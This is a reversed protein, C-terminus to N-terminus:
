NRTQEAIQEIVRGEFLRDLIKRTLEVIEPTSRNIDHEDVHGELERLYHALLGNDKIKGLRYIMDSLELVPVHDLFVPRNAVHPNLETYPNTPASPDRYGFLGQPYNIYMNVWRIKRRLEHTGDELLNPDLEGVDRRIKNLEVGIGKLYIERLDMGCNLIDGLLGNMEQTKEELEAALAQFKMEAEAMKAASLEAYMDFEPDKMLDSHMERHYVVAGLSDEIFKSVKKLKKSAKRSESKEFGRRLVRSLAQIRFAATRVDEYREIPTAQDMSEWETELVLEMSGRYADLFTYGGNVDRSDQAWLSLGILFSFLLGM